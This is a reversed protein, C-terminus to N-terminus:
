ADGTEKGFRELAQLLSIQADHRGSQVGDEFTRCFICRCGNTCTSRNVLETLLAEVEEASLARVSM